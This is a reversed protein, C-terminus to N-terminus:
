ACIQRLNPKQFLLVKPVNETKKNRLGKSNREELCPSTQSEGTFIVRKFCVLCTNKQLVSFSCDM